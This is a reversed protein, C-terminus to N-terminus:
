EQRKGMFPLIGASCNLRASKATFTGSFNLKHECEGLLQDQLRRETGAHNFCLSGNGKGVYSIRDRLAGKVRSAALACVYAKLITSTIANFYQM